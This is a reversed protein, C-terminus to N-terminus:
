SRTAPQDPISIVVVSGRPKNQKFELDGDLRTVGWYMLWLGIGSGHQFSTEEGEVLVSREQDPIGPGNDRVEIDAGPGRNRVTIDIDPTDSDNHEFANEITEELVLELLRRDTRVTVSDAPETVAVTANPYQARATEVRRRAVEVIDVLEPSLRDGELLPDAQELTTGLDVLDSALAHIQDVFEEEREAVDRHELAEAFGRIADLDNRLNHRLIRNLVDLRQEHTRRETVDQLLYAHGVVDGDRSTLESRDVEFQRKGDSTELPITQGSRVAPDLGITEQISDGLTDPRELAFMQEATRNIDLLRDQRGTIAVAADMEDLLTERALYGASAGSEFVRYRVQALVLLAAIGGHIGQLAGFVTEYPVVPAIFQMITAVFIGGGAATLVLSGSRPLDEYSIASRAVLFAGYGALIVLTLQFVNILIFWLPRIESPVVNGAITIGIVAVGFGALATARFGTIVPGRGTYEFALAVWALSAFVYPVFLTFPTWTEPVVGSRALAVGGTMAALLLALVAFPVAGPEGRQRTAFLASVLFTVVIAVEVVVLGIATM